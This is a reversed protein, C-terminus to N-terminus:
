LEARLAMWRQSEPSMQPNVESSGPALRQLRPLADVRRGSM